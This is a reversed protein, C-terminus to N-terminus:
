NRARQLLGDHARKALESQNAVVESCEEVLRRDEHSLGQFDLIGANEFELAIVEQAQAGPDTPFVPHNTFRSKWSVCFILGPERKCGPFRNDHLIQLGFRSKAACEQESRM